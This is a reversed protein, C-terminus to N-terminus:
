GEVQCPGPTKPQIVYDLKKEVRLYPMFASCFEKHDFFPGCSRQMTIAVVRSLEAENEPMKNSVMKSFQMCESLFYQSRLLWLSWALYFMRAVPDSWVDKVSVGEDSWDSTEPDFGLRIRLSLDM